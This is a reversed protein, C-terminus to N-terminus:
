DCHQTYFFPMSLKYHVLGLFKALKSARLGLFLEVVRDKQTEPEGLHRPYKGVGSIVRSARSQEESHSIVVGLTNFLEPGESSLCM